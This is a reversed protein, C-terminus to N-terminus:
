GDGPFEKENREPSTWLQAWTDLGGPLKSGPHGAAERTPGWGLSLNSVQEGRGNGSACTLQGPAAGAVPALETSPPDSSVAGLGECRRVRGSVEASGPGPRRSAGPM